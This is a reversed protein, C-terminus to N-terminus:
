EGGFRRTRGQYDLIAILFDKRTFEPWLIPTFWFETYAMQWLLFNSLRLEGSTRILLDPDPLDRTFLHKVFLEEDIDEPEIKGDKVLRAIERSARVIENRSGYNVALNLNLKTCGTTFEETKHFEEVLKKPLGSLDGIVRFCIGNDKMKQREAVSYHKFLSLLINVENPTRRWNEASFAYASLYKIGLDVCTKVVTRFTKVGSKHGMVVPLSRSKAWRRNGDMIVAVHIPVREFNIKGFLEEETFKSYDLSKDGRTKLKKGNRTLM